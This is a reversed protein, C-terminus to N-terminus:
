HIKFGDRFEWFSGDWEFLLTKGAGTIKLYLVLYVKSNELKLKFDYTKGKMDELEYPLHPAAGAIVSRIFQSVEASFPLIGLLDAIKHYQGTARLALSGVTLGDIYFTMQFPRKNM